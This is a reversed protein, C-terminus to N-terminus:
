NYDTKSLMKIGDISSVVRKTDGIVEIDFGFEERSTSWAMMASGRGINQCVMDWIWERLRSNCDVLYVGPKLEFM